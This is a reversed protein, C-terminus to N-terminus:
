PDCSVASPAHVDQPQGTSCGHASLGSTREAYHHYWPDFNNGQTNMAGTSM